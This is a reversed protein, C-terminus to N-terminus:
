ASVSEELRHHRLDLIVLLAAVVVTLCAAILVATQVTASGLLGVGSAVVAVALLGVAAASRRGFVAPTRKLLFFGVGGLFAFAALSFLTLLGATALSPVARAAPGPVSALSTFVAVLGAASAIGGVFSIAAGLRQREDDHKRQTAVAEEEARRELARELSDVSRALAQMRDSIVSGDMSLQDQMVRPAMERRLSEDITWARFDKENLLQPQQLSRLELRARVRRAIGLSNGLAGGKAPAGEAALLELQAVVDAQDAALQGTVAALSILERVIGEGGVGLYDHYVSLADLDVVAVRGDSRVACLADDRAPETAPQLPEFAWQYGESQREDTTAFDSGDGELQRLLLTDVKLASGHESAGLGVILGEVLRHGARVIRSPVLLEIVPAQMLSQPLDEVQGPFLDSLRADGSVQMFKLLEAVGKASDAASYAFGDDGVRPTPYRLLRGVHDTVEAVAGGARMGGFEILTREAQAMLRELGLVLGIGPVLWLSVASSEPLVVPQDTSQLEALTTASRGFVVSEQSTAQQTHALLVPAGWSDYRPPDTRGAWARGPNLAQLKARSALFPGDEGGPRPTPVSELAPVQGTRLPLLVAILSGNLDAPQALHDM